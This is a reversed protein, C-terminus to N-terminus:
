DASQLGAPNGLVVVPPIGFNMGAVLFASCLQHTSCVVLADASVTSGLESDGEWVVRRLDLVDKRHSSRSNKEKFSAFGEFLRVEREGVDKNIARLLYTAAVLVSCGLGVYWYRTQSGRREIRRGTPNGDENFAVSLPAEILLNLPNSGTGVIELVRSCLRSFSIVEPTGDGVLLGCSSAKEAFGIDVFIWDGTFRNANAKTGAHIM